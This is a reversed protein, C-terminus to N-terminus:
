AVERNVKHVEANGAWRRDTKNLIINKTKRGISNRKTQTQKEKSIGKLKGNSENLGLTAWLIRLYSKKM